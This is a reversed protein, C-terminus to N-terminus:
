QQTDIRLLVGSNDSLWVQDDHCARMQIRSLLLGASSGSTAEIRTEGLPVAPGVELRTESDFHHLLLKATSFGSAVHWNTFEMVWLRDGTLCSQIPGQFDMRAVQNTHADVRWIAAGDDVWLARSDASLTAGSTSSPVPIDASVTNKSADVQAVGGSKVLKLVWVTDNSAAINRVMGRIKIRVISEPKNPDIRALKDLCAFSSISCGPVWISGAAFVAEGDRPFHEVFHIVETSLTEPVKMAIENKALWVSDTGSAIAGVPHHFRIAGTPKGAQLDIQQLWNGAVTIWATKGALEMQLPSHGVPILKTRLSPSSILDQLRTFTLSQLFPKTQEELSTAESTAEPGGPIQQGYGVEVLYGSADPHSCLYRRTSFVFPHKDETDGEIRSDMRLCKPLVPDGALTTFELVHYIKRLEQERAQAIKELFDEGVPFTTWSARVVTAAMQGNGLKKTFVVQDIGILEHRFGEWELLPIPIESSSIPFWGPMKKMVVYGLLGPFGGPRAISWGNGVLPEVTFGPLTARRPSEQARAENYCITHAFLLATLFLTAPTNM